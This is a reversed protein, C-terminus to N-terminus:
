NTPTESSTSATTRSITSRSFTITVKESNLFTLVEKHVVAVLSGPHFVLSAAFNGPVGHISRIGMQHLRTFLYTAVDIPEKLEKTEIDSM